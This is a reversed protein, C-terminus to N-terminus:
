SELVNINNWISLGVSGKKPQIFDWRSKLRYDQDYRVM